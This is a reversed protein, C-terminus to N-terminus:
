RWVKRKKPTCFIKGRGAAQHLSVKLTEFIEIYQTTNFSIAWSGPRLERHPFGRTETFIGLVQGSKGVNEEVVCCSKMDFIILGGESTSNKVRKKITSNKNSHLRQFHNLQYGGGYSLFYNFIIELSPGQAVVELPKVTIFITGNSLSHFARSKLPTKESKIIFTATRRPLSRLSRKKRPPRQRHKKGLSKPPSCRARPRLPDSTCHPSGTASFSPPFSCWARDQATPTEPRGNDYCVAIKLTSSPARSM